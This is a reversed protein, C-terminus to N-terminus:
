RADGKAFRDTGRSALAYVDELEMPRYHYYGQIMDCGTDLILENQAETEVGEICVTKGFQHCAFVISRIFNLNEKSEM